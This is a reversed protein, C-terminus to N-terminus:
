FFFSIRSSHPPSRSKKQLSPLPQWIPHEFFMNVSVCSNKWNFITWAIVNMRADSIRFQIANTEWSWRNFSTSFAHLSMRREANQTNYSSSRSVRIRCLKSWRITVSNSWRWKVDHCKKITTSGFEIKHNLDLEKKVYASSLPFLTEIMNLQNTQSNNKTKKKWKQFEETNKWLNESNQLSSKKISNKKSKKWTQANPMRISQTKIDRKENEENSSKASKLSTNCHLKREFIVSIFRRLIMQIMHNKEMLWQSEGYFPLCVDERKEESVFRLIMLLKCQLVNVFLTSKRNKVCARIAVCVKKLSRMFRKWRARWKRSHRENRIILSKLSTDRIKGHKM